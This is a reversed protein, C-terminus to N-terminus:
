NISWRSKFILLFWKKPENMDESHNDGECLLLKKGGDLLIIHVKV